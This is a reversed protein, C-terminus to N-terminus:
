VDERLLELALRHYDTNNIKLLDLFANTTGEPGQLALKLYHETNLWSEKYYDRFAYLHDILTLKILAKNKSRLTHDLVNVSILEKSPINYDLALNLVNSIRQVTKNANDCTEAYLYLMQVAQGFVDKRMEASEPFEAVLFKLLDWDGTQLFSKFLNIEFFYNRDYNKYACFVATLTRFNKEAVGREADQLLAQVEAGPIENYNVPSGSRYYPTTRNPQRGRKLSEERADAHEQEAAYQHFNIVRELVYM